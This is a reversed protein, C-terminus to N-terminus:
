FELKKIFEHHQAMEEYRSLVQEANEHIYAKEHNEGGFSKVEDLSNFQLFLIFEVEDKIEM